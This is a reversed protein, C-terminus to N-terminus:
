DETSKCGGSSPLWSRPDTEGLDVTVVRLREDLICAVSERIGNLHVTVTLTQKSSGDLTIEPKLGVAVQSGILEGQLDLVYATHPEGENEPSGAGRVVREGSIGNWGILELAAQDKPFGFLQADLFVVAGRKSIDAQSRVSLDRSGHGRAVGEVASADGQHSMVSFIIFLFVGAGMSCSLVDVFSMILPNGGKGRFQRKRSM